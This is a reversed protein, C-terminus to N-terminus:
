NLKLQNIRNLKQKQNKQTHAQAHTKQVTFDIVISGIAELNLELHM